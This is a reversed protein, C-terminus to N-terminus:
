QSHLIFRRSKLFLVISVTGVLALASPVFPMWYGQILLSFCLVYLVGCSFSVLLAVRPLLRMRWAFVGGVISWGWIWIVEGWFSQAQLLPRKDLVASLIQSVMHAQVFVGPMQQDFQNDYFPTDWFDRSEGKAVVGILVIRNKIADPNVRNSLIQGLTVQEAIKESSRYNLLIQGGNADIGQYGGSHSGLGPFVISGLQLDGGSTFKPQIGQALLYRFALQTSFAYNPPCPSVPEQNMFLLHRRVVGDPDHIFDSFGLRNRTPIEPPPAIGKVPVARDSHKCIGVLNEM